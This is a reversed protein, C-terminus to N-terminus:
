VAGPQADDETPKKSKSTGNATLFFVLVNGTVVLGIALLCATRIATLVMESMESM